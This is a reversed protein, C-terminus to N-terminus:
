GALTSPFAANSYTNPSTGLFALGTQGDPLQVLTQGRQSLAPVVGVSTHNGTPVYGLGNYAPVNSDTHTHYDVRGCLPCSSGTVVVPQDTALQSTMGVLGTGHQTNASGGTYPGNPGGDVMYQVGTTSMSPVNQIGRSTIGLSEYITPLGSGVGTTGVGNGYPNSTNVFSYPDAYQTPFVDAETPRVENPLFAPRQSSLGNTDTYLYPYAEQATPEFYVSPLPGDQSRSVHRKRSTRSRHSSKEHRDAPYLRHRNRTIENRKRDDNIFNVVDNPQMQYANYSAEPHAMSTSQGHGNELFMTPEHPRLIYGNRTFYNGHAGQNGTVINAPIIGAPVTGSPVTGTPVYVQHIDPHQLPLQQLGPQQIRQSYPNQLGQLAPVYFTVSPNVAATTPHLPIPQPM